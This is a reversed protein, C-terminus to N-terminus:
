EGNVARRSFVDGQCRDLTPAKVHIKDGRRIGSEAHAGIVSWVGQHCDARENVGETIRSAKCEHRLLSCALVDIGKAILDHRRKNVLIKAARFRQPRTARYDQIERAAWRTNAPILEIDGAACERGRW